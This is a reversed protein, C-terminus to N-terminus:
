NRPKLRPSNDTDEIEFGKAEIEQRLQDAKPWNKNQRAQERTNALEQVEAPITLRRVELLKLGLVKDFELWTAKNASSSLAFALAQPLNLDNNLLTLFQECLNQDVEGVDPLDRIQNELRQLATQAAGVAEWTFNIPSRYHATLLWYRYALPSINHDALDKLTYFNNLSKSMKHGDVQLFAVHLWYRALIKGTLSESQAIENEHHPFMLDSGGTHLDITEGLTKLIMTSCEIHWGPRGRGFSADWANGNDEPTEFKWLAFDRDTNDDIIQKSLDGYNAFSTIKFYVGDATKYAHGTDLLKQVSEIMQPIFETAHVLNTPPLINLSILDDLFIREYKKTFDGLAEGVGRSGNITKDDVDTINMVQNVQYQNFELTRRLLDNIIFARWNGIHAYDYVTPGCSYIKVTPAVLPTFIEEQRSLTNYLKLVM